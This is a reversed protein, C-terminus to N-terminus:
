AREIWTAFQSIVVPLEIPVTLRLLTTIAYVDLVEVHGAVEILAREDKAMQGVGIM